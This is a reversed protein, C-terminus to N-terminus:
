KPAPKGSSEQARLQTARTVARQAQARSVTSRAANVSKSGFSSKAIQRQIKTM